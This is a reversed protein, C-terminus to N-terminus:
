KTMEVIEVEDVNHSVGFKIRGLVQGRETEVSVLWKGESLNRRFSFGRYGDARGGVISYSLKAKSIWKRVDPDFYKWNHVIRTDLEAPAFISTYVYAPQSTTIHVTQGPLLRDLLNTKEADVIYGGGARSIHHYVGAERLSLPIPPIINLTYLSLMALVIVLVSTRIQPHIARIDPLVKTLLQVYLYILALSLGAALFFVWASISNFFFPLVLTSLSFLIFFYVAIQVTPRLYYKRLVDNSAIILAIVLIFPWSVSLTGSFWYFVLSASLLAGFTFQLVLPALIETYKYIFNTSTQRNHRAVNIFIISAGAILTYVGLITFATSLEITKFTIFDVLVGGVLMTPILYRENEKTYRALRTQALSRKIRKIM